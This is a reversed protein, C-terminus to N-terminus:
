LSRLRLAALVRLVRYVIRLVDDPTPSRYIYAKGLVGTIHRTLLSYGVVEGNIYLEQRMVLLEQCGCM